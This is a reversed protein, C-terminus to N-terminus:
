NKGGFIHFFDLQLVYCLKLATVVSLHNLELDGSFVKRLNQVSYDIIDAIDKSLFSFSASTYESRFLQETLENLPFVTYMDGYLIKKIEYIFSLYEREYDSDTIVDSDGKLIALRDFCKTYHYFFLDNQDNSITERTRMKFHFLRQYTRNKLVSYNYVRPHNKRWLEIKTDVEEKYGFFEECFKEVDLELPEFLANIKYVPLVSLSREGNEYYQLSRVQVGTLASFDARSYGHAVRAQKFVEYAEM